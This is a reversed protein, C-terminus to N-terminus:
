HNLAGHAPTGALGGPCSASLEGLLDRDYPALHWDLAQLNEAVQKRNKIGVLVSSVQRNDLVWRIAVSPFPRDLKESLLRIAGLLRQKETRGQNSFYASNRRTDMVGFENGLARRGALLGRALGSHALISIRASDCWPFIEGEPERCLLNFAIQQSELRRISHARQLLGLSFNSVGLFQIKGQDQCLALTEMTEEIPTAPDPWHIQYLPIADIRLRRLSAELARLVTKRGLDRHVRGQQDWVLGCKTAILVDHRRDGLAESLLEEVRGLGYVDAVDFFNIGEDLAAQVALKWEAEDMPGYDYGSAPGCGFGIRSITVPTQGLQRYEV